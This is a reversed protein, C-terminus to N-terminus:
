LPVSLSADIRDVAERTVVSGCAALKGRLVVFRDRLRRSEMGAAFDLASITNAAASEPEGRGLDVTTLTALRHVRGRAHAQTRVAEEAFARAPSWDGLSIFAEALQAEVLGPQVYGTEPPEEASRIRIAAAEARGM